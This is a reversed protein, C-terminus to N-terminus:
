TFSALTLTFYSDTVHTIHEALFASKGIVKENRYQTFTVLDYLSQKRVIPSLLEQNYSICVHCAVLHLDQIYISSHTYSDM